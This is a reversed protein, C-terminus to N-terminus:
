QEITISVRRNKMRGSVTENPAIPTFAAGGRDLLRGRSIGKSLLYKVVATARAVSRDMNQKQTGQNDSHGIIRVIARPHSKLFNAIEDLQEKNEKSLTTASSTTFGTLDWPSGELLAVLPSGGTTPPTEQTAVEIKVPEPAPEPVYALEISPPNKLETFGPFEFGIENRIDAMYDVPVESNPDYYLTDIKIKDTALKIQLGINVVMDNWNSGRSTIIHTGGKFDMFPTVRVRNNASFFDAIFFDYGIGL